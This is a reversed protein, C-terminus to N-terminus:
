RLGGKACAWGDLPLCCERLSTDALAIYRRSSEVRGHGLIQATLELEAGSEVLRTGITRRLAHFTKGDGATHTVGAKDLWRAMLLAGTPGTLKLFPAKLRVFVEPAASSPRGNLLWDAVANGALVSLPLTLAASTKRQVLRIEDRHWDIADRRLEVIDVGRLGTSLALAVMAYDRKGHPASTDIAALIRTTEDMTFCPLVRVRRPGVKGLLGEVDLDTLGQRNTFRIFRKLAWALNGMGSAHRPRVEVLYRRVEDVTLEGLPRSARDLFSLFQRAEGVVLRTSGATLDQRSSGAFDELVTEYFPMVGPRPRRRRWRLEGSQQFELMARASKELSSRMVPGIEGRGLRVDMALLFREVLEEDLSTRGQAQCFRVVSRCCDRYYLLSNPVLGVRAVGALVGEVLVSLEDEM